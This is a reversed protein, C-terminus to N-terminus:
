DFWMMQRQSTASRPVRWGGPGTRRRPGTGTRGLNQLWTAAETLIGADPWRAPSQSSSSSSAVMHTNGFIPPFGWFPHHLYHFDRNFHSSKPTIVGIKPFVWIIGMAWQLSWGGRFSGARGAFNRIRSGDTGWFLKQWTPKLLFLLGNNTKIQQPPKKLRPYKCFFYCLFLVYEYDHYFCYDYYFCYYVINLVFYQIHTNGFITTGGFWGNEYPKGHYVMWKPTGRNKSVGM